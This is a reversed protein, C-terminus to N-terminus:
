RKHNRPLFITAPATCDIVQETGDVAPGLLALRFDCNM